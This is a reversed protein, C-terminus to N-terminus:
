WRRSTRTAGRLPHTSQFKHYGAQNHCARHDCGALPTHISVRKLSGDTQSSLDCGALPTHISVGFTLIDTEEESPRVGCPTHPNFCYINGWVVNPIPTAGRLPHTSQFMRAGFATAKGALDCGALPTHISVTNQTHIGLGTFTAGRLPHTSQFQHCTGVRDAQM